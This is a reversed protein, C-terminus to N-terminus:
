IEITDSALELSSLLIDTMKKKEEKGCKEGKKILLKIEHLTEVYFIM